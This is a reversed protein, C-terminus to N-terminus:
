GQSGKYVSPVNSEYSTYDFQSLKKYALSTEYKGVNDKPQFNSVHLYLFHSYGFSVQFNLPMSSPYKSCMLEILNNVQFFKSNTALSIDDVLRYYFQVKDNVEELSLLDIESALLITDLGERSSHGGMPFGRSQRHIGSPTEFYCNNFVLAALKNSLSIKRSSWNVVGGLKKIAKQLDTLESQTYADAFDASLITNLSWDEAPYRINQIKRSYEECGMVVPYRSGMHVKLVAHLEQLLKCLSKSYPKLPCNEAGRIPRSPLEKWVSPILDKVKHIKPILKLVGVAEKFVTKKFVTKLIDAEERDLSKRFVQIETNLFKLCQGNSLNTKIHGGKISQIKYQEVFWEIPLLVFGLGKDAITLITGSPIKDM